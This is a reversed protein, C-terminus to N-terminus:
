TIKQPLCCLLPFLPLMKEKLIFFVKDNRSVEYNGKNYEKMFALFPSVKLLLLIIRQLQNSIKDRSVSFFFKGNKM